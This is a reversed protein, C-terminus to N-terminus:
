AGAAAVHDRIAAVIQRARPAEFVLPVRELHGSVQRFGCLKLCWGATSDHRSLLNRFGQTIPLRTNGSGNLDGDSLAQLCTALLTAVRQYNVGAEKQLVDLVGTLQRAEAGVLPM